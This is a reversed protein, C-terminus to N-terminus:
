SSARRQGSSLGDGVGVAAIGTAAKEKADEARALEAARTYLAMLARWVRDQDADRIIATAPRSLPQATERTLATQGGLDGAGGTNNRLDAQM